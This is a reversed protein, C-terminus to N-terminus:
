EMTENCKMVWVTPVGLVNFICRLQCTPEGHWMYAMCGSNPNACSSGLDRCNKETGSSGDASNLLIPFLLMGCLLLIVTLPFKSKRNM